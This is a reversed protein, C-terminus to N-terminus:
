PTPATPQVDTLERNVSNTAGQRVDGLASDGLKTALTVIHFPPALDSAVVMMRVHRLMAFILNTDFVHHHVGRHKLNDECRRKFEALTGAALDRSLDHLQLIEPLHALDGEQVNNAFDDLLHDLQTIPRRHDFTGRRDPLVLLLAGGPKLVRNWESLARLPNAVHELSHSSLVFDYTESAIPSLDVADLIHQYGAAKRRDYVYRQGEELSTEWLTSRSFNCGDVSEVLPYVPLRNRRTFLSSPGGIELGRMGEVVKRYDTFHSIRRRYGVAAWLKRLLM